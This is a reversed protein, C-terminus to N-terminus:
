NKFNELKLVTWFKDPITYNCMNVTNLTSQQIGISHQHLLRTANTTQKSRQFKTSGFYRCNCTISLSKIFQECITQQINFCIHILTNPM